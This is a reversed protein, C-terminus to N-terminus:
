ARDIINYANPPSVRKNLRIPRQAGQCKAPKPYTKKKGIGAIENITDKKVDSKSPSPLIIILFRLKIIKVTATVQKVTYIEAVQNQYLYVRCIKM